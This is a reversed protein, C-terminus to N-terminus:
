ENRGIKAAWAQLRAATTSGAPFNDTACKAFADRMRNRETRGLDIGIESTPADGTPIVGLFRGPANVTITQKLAEADVETTATGAVSGLYHTKPGYYYFPQSLALVDGREEIDYPRDPDIGSNRLSDAREPYLAADSVNKCVFTGM